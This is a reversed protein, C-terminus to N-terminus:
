NIGLKNKYVNIVPRILGLTNNVDTQYAYAKNNYDTLVFPLSSNNASNSIFYTSNKLRAWYPTNISEEYYLTGTKDVFGLNQLDTTNLLRIKYGDVEKLDSSILSSYSSLINKIKISDVYYTLNELNAYSSLESSNLPNSKLMTVYDDGIDIVYWYDNNYLVAEYKNLKDDVIRIPNEDKYCKNGSLEYDNLCTYQTDGTVGKTYLRVKNLDSLTVIGDGNIDSIKLNDDVLTISKNIHNSIIKIDEDNIKGDTNVDGKKIASTTIRCSNNYLKYGTPCIVNNTVSNGSLYLLDGSATIAIAVVIFFVSAVIPPVLTKVKVKQKKTSNVM